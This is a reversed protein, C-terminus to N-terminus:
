KQNMLNTNRVIDTRLQLSNSTLLKSKDKCFHIERLLRKTFQYVITIMNYYCQKPINKLNNSKIKKKVICKLIKM